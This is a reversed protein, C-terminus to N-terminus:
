RLRGGFRSKWISGAFCIWGRAEHKEFLSSGPPDWSETLPKGAPVVSELGLATRLGHLMWAGGGREDEANTVTMWGHEGTKRIGDSPLTTDQWLNQRNWMTFVIGLNLDEAELLLPMEEMPRHVHM